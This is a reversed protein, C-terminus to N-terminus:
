SLIPFGEAGSIIGIFVLQPKPFLLGEAQTM